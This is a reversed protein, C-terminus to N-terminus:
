KERKGKRRRGRKRKKKKKESKLDKQTAHRGSTRNSQIRIM